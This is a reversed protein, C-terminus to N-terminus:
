GWRVQNLSKGVHGGGLLAKTYLSRWMIKGIPGQHSSKGVHGEWFPGSTFVEACSKGLLARTYLNGWMVEVWYLWSAFYLGPGQKGNAQLHRVSILVHSSSGHNLVATGWPPSLCLMLVLWSASLHFHQSGGKERKMWNPTLTSPSTSSLNLTPRRKRTLGM